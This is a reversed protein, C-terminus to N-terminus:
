LYNLIDTIGVDEQNNSDHFPVVCSLKFLPYENFFVRVSVALVVFICCVLVTVIDVDPALQLAVVGGPEHGHPGSLVRAIDRLVDLCAGRIKMFFIM